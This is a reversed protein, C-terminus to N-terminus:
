EEATQAVCQLLVNAGAECDAWATDEVEVHSRGDISPVFIMATPGTLAMYSADHGAGSVMPLTSYGLAQACAEVRRVLDAAFEVHQVRWTEEMRIACGHVTAISELAAGLERWARLALADDWSRIDVTFHVHGPIVNRSNPENHIEGVTAVLDGGILSPLERVRVIMEAAAVLADARGAMPTPGVQNAQGDLHVDYWHIGLIGKPVGITVGERDLKPGQEIHLEYYAAFPRPACAEGGRYGIRELEALVTRGALDTRGWVWDRELRGSWVGSAMMAPAFRSGEENTWDVAVLPRLTQVENDALTRLVELAGMVGLIGDFRGGRPQSDVHSGMMVPPEDDDRGGRRGFISGMEDVTVELAIEEFWSVLLDRACKDEDSLALRQVGGGPTAGIQAMRELSERLRAGDVRLGRVDV